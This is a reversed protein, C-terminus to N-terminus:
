FRYYLFPSFTSDVLYATIVLFAGAILLVQAYRMTVFRNKLADFLRKPLPTAALVCILLLPLYRLLDYVVTPTAFSTVGVGFMAKLCTLGEGLDTFYFILWSICVFFMTYLHALVAPAKQLWKYLFLKEVILLVCFYAGWLLFNWSAGHWFGTLLWVVAINRYQRLKGRRNGGLPIYVYERFWTSLSIHWRSWFDKMDLSLFPLDFNDPQEIGLLYATGVAMRSYGAFNFFMFFTYGYMYSVTAWFGHEPLSSLWFKWILNGIVFNYFAGTMLRWLGDRLLARYEVGTRMKHLDTEFRRYRDLPGSSVSPFFLVFYSLDLLNLETIRGDYIDILPQVARFSLYSLGLMSLARLPEVWLSLKVLLLPLLSLAVALHFVWAKKARKRLYLYWFTLATQWVWFAALLLLAHLTRFIALLMVACVLMGCVRLQKGKLGCIVVPLLVLLLLLFYDLGGFPNM